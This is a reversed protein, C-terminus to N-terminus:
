KGRLTTLIVSLKKDDLESPILVVTNDPFNIRIPPYRSLIPKLSTETSTITVPAFQNRKPKKEEARVIKSRQYVFQPYNVGHIKCFTKQTAGEIEWLRNLEQWQQPELSNNTEKTTM